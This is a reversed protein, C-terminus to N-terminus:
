PLAKDKTKAFRHYRNGNLKNASIAGTVIQRRASLIRRTLGRGCQLGPEVLVLLVRIGCLALLDHQGDDGLHCQRLHGRPERISPSPQLLLVLHCPLGLVLRVVIVVCHKRVVILLFVVQISRMVRSVHVLLSIM